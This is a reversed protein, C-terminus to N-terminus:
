RQAPSRMAAIDELLLLRLERVVDPHEAALDHSEGPDEEIRYLREPQDRGASVFRWERTRLFWARRSGGDPGDARLDEGAGVLRDRWPGERGLLLSLLSRGPLGRPVPAGALELITPFLDLTSVLRDDRRGEPLVGPWSVVLPTRFGLEHISLKGQPGGLNRAAADGRDHLADWGNDALYIVLTRERLGERELRALIEGVGEDFRALNAFYARALEPIPADRFLDAHRAPADFPLHPLMPAYWVFFPERGQAALFEELPALTERGLALGYGGAALTLSDLPGRERWPPWETMADTFGADLPSGEWFKGGAFARYGRRVLLEPLTEFADAFRLPEHGGRRDRALQREVDFPQQGTLLSQLSARCVSATDFAHTFVVGQAALRDLNPTRAIASGMFGYDGFGVDDGIMLLIAPREPLPREADRECAALSAAACAIAAGLARTAARTV